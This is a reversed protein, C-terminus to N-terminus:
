RVKPKREETGIENKDRSDIHASIFPFFGISLISEPVPLHLLLNYFLNPIYSNPCSDCM